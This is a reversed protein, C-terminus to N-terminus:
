CKLEGLTRKILETNKYYQVNLGLFSRYRKTTMDFMISVIKAKVEQAILEDVSNRVQEVYETINKNNVVINFPKLQHDVLDHIGGDYTVVNFPLCHKAVLKILGGVVRQKVVKVMASDTKKVVASTRQTDTAAVREGLKM